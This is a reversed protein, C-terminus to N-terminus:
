LCNQFFISFWCFIITDLSRKVRSLWSHFDGAIELLLFQVIRTYNIGWQEWWGKNTPTYPGYLLRTFKAISILWGPVRIVMNLIGSITAVARGWAAVGLVDQWFNTSSLYPIHKFVPIEGRTVCSVSYTCIRLLAAKWRRVIRSRWRRINSWYCGGAFGCFQSM